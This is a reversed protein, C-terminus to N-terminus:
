GDQRVLEYGHALFSAALQEIGDQSLGAKAYAGEEICSFGNELM